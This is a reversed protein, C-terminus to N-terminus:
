EVTRIARYAREFRAREDEPLSWELIEEVGAEGLRIPVSLSVDEFGYEGDLPTSFCVPSEAAAGDRLRAVTAAVGRGTVWRSSDSAGRLNLVDYPVDRVYEIIEDREQPSLDLPEGEVTARSFVPVVHEGHEGLIPCYVERPSVDAIRAIEDAIRATESLSYGLFYRRPWDTRSWLRYTIHDVPNSVVVVPTPDTTRLRKAVEDAIALNEDLFSLRGGREDGGEPRPASATIVVCDAEAVAESNPEGARVTGLDETDFDPRGVGHAAHRTSHRLDIAHGKAVDSRIDALTVNASPNLVSLTYAVTSGVTGGGVILVDM